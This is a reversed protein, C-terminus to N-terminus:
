ELIARDVLQRFEKDDMLSGTKIKSSQRTPDTYEDQGMVVNRYGADDSDILILQVGEDPSDDWSDWVSGDAYYILM